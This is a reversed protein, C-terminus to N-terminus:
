DAKVVLVDSLRTTYRPSLMNQQMKWTRELDQSALKVIDSGIRQNIEDMASMLAPHKKNSNDFLGLQKQTAPIIRSVVVGAKKYAYGEKFIRELGQIAFQSLEISSHSPFPLDITVSDRHQPM